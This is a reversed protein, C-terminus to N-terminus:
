YAGVMDLDQTALIDYVCDKRDLIDKVHGCTKEAEEETISSEELRRRREGRPDEAEICKQPFQPETVDHFLIDEEPLAQWEKGFDRFDHIETVGDRAITKGTKFDGLMGVTNGFSEETAGVIDVRVFENFAHIEVSQGPYKSSLDITFKRKHFKCKGRCPPEEVTIPFGGITDLEGQYEYNIWYNSKGAIDDAMGQVELIDVGIRVAAQKIYSWFRVLKTRIQVDIGLGDAFDRDKTLILDCQGHFEFHENHWTKFHPDGQSGSPTPEGAESPASPQTPTTPDTPTEDGEQHECESPVTVSWICENGEPASSCTGGGDSGPFYTGGAESSPACTATIGRATQDQISGSGTCAAGDRILLHVTEGALVNMCVNSFTAPAWLSGPGFVDEPDTCSEDWNGKGQPNGGNLCGGDDAAIAGEQYEDGIFEVHGSKNCAARQFPTLQTWCVQYECDTGCPGPTSLENVTFM